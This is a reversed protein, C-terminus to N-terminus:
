ATAALPVPDGFHSAVQTQLAQKSREWSFHAELANLAAQRAADLAAPDSVLPLLAARLDSPDGQRFLRVSGPATAAIEAQGRTDSAVVAMRARMYEFAKNTITVDRSACDALEGCYGIDHEALRSLLQDQPVQPHVRVRARASQSLPALLTDVYGPRPTGRLHLACDQPLGAFAAVLAELGRGPGITQSFWTISPGEDPKRDLRQGDIADRDSLPFSNYIVLPRPCAYRAVLADSMANSTTTAHVAANLLTSEALRMLEVPRRARDEPLGDETHWDEIDIRVLHGEEVLRLGVWLSKELHLSYLDTPTRRAARLLPWVPFGLQLPHEIGLRTRAVAASAAAARLALMHVRNVPRRDSLDVVPRHVWHRGQLLRAIRPLADASWVASLVTVNYGLEVLADAEKVVRPNDTVQLGSVITIRRPM